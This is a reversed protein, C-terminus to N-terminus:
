VIGSKNVKAHILTPKKPKENGITIANIFKGVAGSVDIKKAYYFKALVDGEKVFDGVKKYLIIGASFDIESEKTERGAGLMVSAKGCEETQISQIYGEEPSLVEYCMEAKQFLNTDRILAVDGGQAEVMDELKKLARGSSIAEKALSLCHEFDGEEALCLMNAALQLCIEELDKPGNGKLTEISEIVELSNGIANGLPIDMDTILAMTNKGAGNGIKVMAEALAISDEVTKMFAGMGTKVDLLICDSGAALKKSMISSAILPISEVTATVDRLAYLKKDAPAFNGSQGIVCVGVKNVIEFFREHEIDTRIGNISELKDVTGGTHGLGRGSMKAVPVGCSAVIPAIVLTTKDGVGGTSHKDVKLGEISSLDVIDGSHTMSLTFDLTEQESMGNFYIAMLLASVQYDPISGNTYGTIFFDIEDKTLAGNNRKKSIIDYMRM